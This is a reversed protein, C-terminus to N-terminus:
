APSSSSSRSWMSWVSRSWATGIPHSGTSWWLTRVPRSRHVGCWAGRVEPNSGRATCTRVRRLEALHHRQCHPGWLKSAGARGDAFTARAAFTFPLLRQQEGEFFCCFLLCILLALTQACAALVSELMRLWKSTGRSGSSRDVSVCCLESAYRTEWDGQENQSCFTRWPPDTRDAPFSGSSVTTNGVTTVSTILRM